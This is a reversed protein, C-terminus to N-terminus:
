VVFLHMYISMHKICINSVIFMYMCIAHEHLTSMYMCALSRIYVYKNYVYIYVSCLVYIFSYSYIHLFWHM